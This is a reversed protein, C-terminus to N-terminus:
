AEGGLARLGPLQRRRAPTVPPALDLKPVAPQVIGDETRGNLRGPLQM